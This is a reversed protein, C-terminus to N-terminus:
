RKKVTVSINIKEDGVKCDSPTYNPNIKWKKSDSKINM